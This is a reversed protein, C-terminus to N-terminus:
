LEHESRLVVFRWCLVPGSAGKPASAVLGGGMGVGGCAAEVGAVGVILVEIM